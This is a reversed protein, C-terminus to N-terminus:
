RKDCWKQTRNRGTRIDTGRTSQKGPNSGQRSQKHTQIVRILYKVANPDRERTHTTRSLLVGDLMSGATKKTKKTKQTMDLGLLEPNRTGEWVLPLFSAGRM